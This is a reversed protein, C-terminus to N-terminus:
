AGTGGGEREALPPTDRLARFFAAPGAVDPLTRLVALAHALGHAPDFGFGESGKAWTSRPVVRRLEDFFAKREEIVPDRYSSVDPVPAEGPGPAHPGGADPSAQLRAMFADHGIGGPVTRLWDIFETGSIGSTALGKLRVLDVGIRRLEREVDLPSFGSQEM